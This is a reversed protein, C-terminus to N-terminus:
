PQGGIDTANAAHFAARELGTTALWATAALVTGITLLHVGYGVIRTTRDQWQHRQQVRTYSPAANM